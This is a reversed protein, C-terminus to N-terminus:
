SMHVLSPAAVVRFGQDDFWDVPYLRLRAGCRVFTSDSYYAGGRLAVILKSSEFDGELTHAEEPYVTYDSATWEWVNGALDLAGCAAMGHPCLGVPAAAELGWADYVAHATTPEESGWPYTRRAGPGAYAAAVEWEAETPLRLVCGPPLHDALEASLWACFATAEHWTIFVVPQNAVSFRPNGWEYPRTRKGRWELGNPTWHEDTRYGEAVFRTFQAVTIPLRAIWFPALSHEVAPKDGEWGGIAYAGGPVSRWYHEGQDTLAAGRQALSTRWEATTVPFRPDGLENLVHGALLMDEHPIAAARSNTLRVIASRLPQIIESHLDLQESAAFESRGGLGHYTIAALRVDHAYQEPPKPTEGRREGWLQKLWLLGQGPAKKQVALCGSLLALTKRWRERDASQWLAYAVDGMAPQQTDDGRSGPLGALYCAALYEQFSLHPFAFADDGRAVLLGAEVSLVQEFTKCAGFPDTLGLRDFFTVLRGRLMTASIVGRGEEGRAARHAEFALAHLPNRLSSLTLGPPNGLRALLGPRPNAIGPQRVPEWRDLLLVVCREYLDVENDPVRDNDHLLALMTLLLPSEVLPALAPRSELQAILREAQEAAAALTLDASHEALGRFWSAVFTRVQGFALPAITRRAWQDAPLQWDGPADYPLIRSTVVVRSKTRQVLRQLAQSVRTRPSQAGGEASLEDLGDCLLIVGGRRLSDRLADHLGASLGQPGDLIAALTQWLAQDANPTHVLTEAVQALPLLIPVPTDDAAWGTLPLAEGCARRALLHGLYRLVTSKGSGPEGLLVLRRNRAIAEIALEPRQLELAVEVDDSLQDLGMHAIVNRLMHEEVTRGGPKAADPEVAVSIVREPRVDAPSRKARELRELFRRLRAVTVSLIPRRPVPPGDTTLSTYVDQLRLQPVAAQENGRLRQGTIRQLRLQDCEGAFTELYESLLDAANAPSGAGYFIQITQETATFKQAVQDGIHAQDGYTNGAGGSAGGSQASQDVQPPNLLEQMRRNREEPPLRLLEQLFEDSFQTM